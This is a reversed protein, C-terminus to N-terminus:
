KLKDLYIKFLSTFILDILVIIAMLIFYNQFIYKDSKMEKLSPLNHQYSRTNHALRNREVYVYKVFLDNLSLSCTNSREAAPINDKKILLQSTGMIWNKKISTIIVMCEKYLKPFNYALLSKSFLKQISTRWESIIEDKFDDSIEFSDDLKTIAELLDVYVMCKDNYDSCESYPKKEYRTYRYEYDRCALEWCICKLKQEQAGTLKLFLSHLLYESIPYTEIGGSTANLSWIAEKVINTAPRLIFQIHNNPQVYPM